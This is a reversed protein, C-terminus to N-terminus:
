LQPLIHPNILSSIRQSTEPAIGSFRAAFWAQPTITIEARGVNVADVIKRAAATVKASLFPTRAATQFWAKEREADGTFHAHSEGGTRMLGPCVTTVRIGKHRLEAHLGESFGTLAFKSAVYPLLHPVALKGGISSINVIAGAGNGILYPLAAHITYLSGFFNISMASEYTKLTHAEAPGVDIVGADNILIDITGFANLTSEILKSAQHKDSVDCAVLLIHDRNIVSSASLLKQKAAEIQQADRAALVLKLGARGLQHALELGLGSSGGTIIAVQGSKIRAAKPMCAYVVAAATASLVVNRTSFLSKAM